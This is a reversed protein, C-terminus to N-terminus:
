AFNTRGLAIGKRWRCHLAVPPHPLHAVGPLSERHDLGGGGGSAGHGDAGHQCSRLPRACLRERNYFVADREPSRQSRGTKGFLLAQAQGHTASLFAPSRAAGAEGPQKNVGAQTALQGDTVILALPRAADVDDQGIRLASADGARRGLPKDDDSAGRYVYGTVLRAPVGERPATLIFEAREAPPLFIEGTEPAYTASGPEGFHLPAGDLAVLSLAQHKGAFELSLDLYTDASANLVRWFEREGPKMKIVAPPYKPYPVPIYNISLQKTPRVPDSKEADSPAPMNEDRIVFVRQPLGAVRPVASEVGEVILAGSAGGLIQDESFGHVHPHYWYLGPPQTKPIQLRYEFPPDGPNIVTKLTEDQHCVPPVSLGHFHLNASAATMQGGACPDHKGGNSSRGGSQNAGHHSSVVAGPLSIENKLTVSLIDGPQLRLTPAQQGNKDLYCYRMNGNADLSNRVTLVVALRGNESRLEAPEAVTSGESPRPCADSVQTRDSGATIPETWGSVCFAVNVAILLSPFFLRRLRLQSSLSRLSAVHFM